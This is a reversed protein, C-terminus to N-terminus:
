FSLIKSKKRTVLPFSLPLKELEQILIKSVLYNRYWKNDSPIVHWPANRTHTHDLMEQFVDQYKNWYKREKLDQPSFKWKKTPNQLREDLRSKQEEKSIHLFFKLIRTGKNTLLKEFDNINEYRAQFLQKPNSFSSPLHQKQLLKQHIKVTTVEEYYSRNFIATFGSEPTHLHCRWLFDHRAENSTPEKFSVVKLGQPNASQFLHRVTGDKGATDIGHLIILLSYRCDAFMKYLLDYTRTKFKETIELAEDKTRMAGTDQPSIFKLQPKKTM